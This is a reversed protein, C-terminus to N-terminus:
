ISRFRLQLGRGIFKGGEGSLDDSEIVIYYSSDVNINHISDEVYICYGKAAKQFSLWDSILDALNPLM